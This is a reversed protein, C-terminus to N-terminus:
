PHFTLLRGGVVLSRYPRHVGDKLATVFSGAGRMGPKEGAPAEDRGGPLGPHRGPPAAGQAGAATGLLTPLRQTLVCDTKVQMLYRPPADLIRRAKAVM